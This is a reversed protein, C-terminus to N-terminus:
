NSGRIYTTHAWVAIGHYAIRSFLSFVSKFYLITLNEFREYILRSDLVLTSAGIWFFYLYM